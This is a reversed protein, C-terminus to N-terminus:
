EVEGLAMRRAVTITLDWLQSEVNPLLVMDEPWEIERHWTATVGEPVDTGYYHTQVTQDDMLCKMHCRAKWANKTPNYILADTWFELVTVITKM